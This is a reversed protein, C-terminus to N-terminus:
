KRHVDSGGSANINQVTADGFYTLDSGGNAHANIEKNVTIYADSGGSINIESRDTILDKAKIDSGGSAEVDFFGVKGSLSADSGGSIKCIFEDAEINLFIDSGGSAKIELKDVKLGNNSRIDSGGSAKIGEIDKVTIYVAMNNFRYINKRYYIKLTNDSVETIMNDLIEQNRAEAEVSVQNGQEIYLDIGNSIEIKSFGSVNRPEKVQGFITALGIFLLITIIATIILHKKM